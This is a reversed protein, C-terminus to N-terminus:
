VYMLGMDMNNDSALQKVLKALKVSQENRVDSPANAYEIQATLMASWFSQQITRHDSKVTTAILQGIEKRNGGNLARLIVNTAEIVAQQDSDNTRM